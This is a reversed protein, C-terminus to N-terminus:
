PNKSAKNLQRQIKLRRILGLREFFLIGNLHDIEHQFIRALFKEARLEVPAGEENLTKVKVWNARKIELWVKPLSLCGEAAINTRLSKRVIEPNIFAKLEKGFNVIIIRKLVGVQNAALGSASSGEKLSEKLAEPDTMTEKMKLILEKIEPTIEKIAEAKRKLIPDPYKRIELKM